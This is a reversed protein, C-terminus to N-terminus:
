VMSLSQLPSVLNKRLAFSAGADHLENEPHGKWFFTYGAIEKTLQGGEAFQMESQAMTDIFHREPEQAVLATQRTPPDTQNPCDLLTHVNWMAVILCFSLNQPKLNLQM